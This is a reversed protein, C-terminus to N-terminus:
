NEPDIKKLLDRAENRWEVDIGDDWSNAKSLETIFEHFIQIYSIACRLECCGTQEGAFKDGQLYKCDCFKESNFYGCRSQRILKLKELLKDIKM